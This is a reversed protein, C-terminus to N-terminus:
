RGKGWPYDDSIVMQKAEDISLKGDLCVVQIGFATLMENNANLKGADSEKQLVEEMMNKVEEASEKDYSVTYVHKRLVTSLSRM